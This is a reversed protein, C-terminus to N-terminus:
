RIEVIEIKLGLPELWKNLNNIYFTIRRKFNYGDNKDHIKAFAVWTSFQKKIQNNIQEM